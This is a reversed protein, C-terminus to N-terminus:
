EIRYSQLHSICRLGVHAGFAGQSLGNLARVGHEEYRSRVEHGALRALLKDVALVDGVDRLLGSDLMEYKRRQKVHSLRGVATELM